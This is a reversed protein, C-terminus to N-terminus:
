GRFKVDTKTVKTEVSRQENGESWASAEKGMNTSTNTIQVTTNNTVSSVEFTAVMVNTSGIRAPVTEAKVGGGGIV